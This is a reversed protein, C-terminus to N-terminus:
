AFTEGGAELTDLKSQVPNAYMALFIQRVADEELAVREQLAKEITRWDCDLRAKLWSVRTDVGYLQEWAILNTPHLYYNALVQRDVEAAMEEDDACGSIVDGFSLHVAGKDGVIGKYISLLDEHETKNYQGTQQRQYLERAKDLDCPDYMYSISVPVLNLPEMAEAFSQGRERGLSLMKILATDTRDLGDKARGERQAIWIHCGDEMLSQRIYKSLTTLAKMLLKLPESGSPASYQNALISSAPSSGRKM